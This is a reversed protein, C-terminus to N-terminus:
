DAFLYEAFNTPCSYTGEMKTNTFFIWTIQDIRSRVCISKETLTHNNYLLLPYQFDSITSVQWLLKATYLNVTKSPIISTILSSTLITCNVYVSISVVSLCCISLFINCPMEFIIYLTSYFLFCRPCDLYQNKTFNKQSTLVLNKSSKM